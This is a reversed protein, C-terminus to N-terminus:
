TTNLKCLHLAVQPEVRQNADKKAEFINVIYSYMLGISYMNPTGSIRIVTTAGEKRTTDCSLPESAIVSHMSHKYTSCVNISYWMASGFYDARSSNFASCKIKNSFHISILMIYSVIYQTYYWSFM